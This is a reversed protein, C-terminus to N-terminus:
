VIGTIEASVFLRGQIAAAGSGNVRVAVRTPGTRANHALRQAWTQRRHQRQAEATAIYSARTARRPSPPADVLIRCKASVAEWLQRLTAPLLVPVLPQLPGKPAGTPPLLRQAIVPKDWDQSRKQKGLRTGIPLADAGPVNIARTYGPNTSKTCEARKPCAFCCTSPVTFRAYKGRGQVIVGGFAATQGAPCQLRVGTWLWGPHRRAIRRWPLQAIAQAISHATADPAVPGPSPEPAAPDPNAAPAPSTDPATPVQATPGPQALAQAQEPIEGLDGALKAGLAVKLNFAWLGMLTAFTQGPLENSYVRLVGTEADLQAFRNEISAREFYCKVVEAAPWGQYSLATGFLEYNWGDMLHGAGHKAEAVFRSVVLRTRMPEPAADREDAVADLLYDGLDLAERRPGSGSDRVPQWPGQRFRTAAYDSQLLTYRTMRVLPILGRKRWARYAATVDGGGDVRIVTADAPVQALRAVELASLAIRDAVDAPHPNGAEYEVHCWTGTGSHGLMHAAIQVEGRKRGKYGPAAMATARAIPEPLDPGHPLGRKRLAIVTPDYDLVLHARGEADRYQSAPHRLLPGLASGEGLLWRALAVLDCRGASHLCRSVSSQTAWQERGALAALASRWGSCLGSFSRQGSRKAGGAKTLFLCLLFMAVDFPHFGGQRSFRIRETAQGLLGAADLARVALAYPSAWAPLKRPDTVTTIVETSIQPM